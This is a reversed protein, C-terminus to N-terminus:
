IDARFSVAVYCMWELVNRWRDSPRLSLVVWAGNVAECADAAAVAPTIRHFSCRFVISPSRHSVNIAEESGPRPDNRYLRSSAYSVAIVLCSDNAYWDILWDILMFKSHRGVDLARPHWFHLSFVVADCHWLLSEAFLHTKLRTLFLTYTSSTRIHSPLRNWASPAAVSFSSNSLQFFTNTLTSSCSGFSWGRISSRPNLTEGPKTVWTAM